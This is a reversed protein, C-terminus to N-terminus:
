RLVLGTITATAVAVGFFTMTAILSRKSLRSLGCVGHGSTCGNGARTGLGVLVGALGVVPLPIRTTTDFTDPAALEFVAGAALMGAIFWVRWARDGATGRLCGAFVGSLGAIRGTTILVIALATAILLGGAVASLPTFDHM